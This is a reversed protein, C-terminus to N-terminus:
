TAELEQMAIRFPIFSALVHSVEAIFIDRECESTSLLLLSFLLRFLGLSGFMAHAKQVLHRFLCLVGDVETVLNQADKTRGM